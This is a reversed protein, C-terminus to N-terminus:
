LSFFYMSVPLTHFGGLFEHAKSVLQGTPNILASLSLVGCVTWIQVVGGACVELFPENLDM